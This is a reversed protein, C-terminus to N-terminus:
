NCWMQDYAEVLAARKNYFKVALDSLEKYMKINKEFYLNAQKMLRDGQRDLANCESMYARFSTEKTLEM